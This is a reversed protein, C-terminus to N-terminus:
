IYNLGYIWARDENKLNTCQRVPKLSCGCHKRYVCKKDPYNGYPDSPDFIASFGSNRKSINLSM